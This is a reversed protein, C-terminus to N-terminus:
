VLFCGIVFSLASLQLTAFGGFNTFFLFHGGRKEQARTDCEGSKWHKLPKYRSRTNINSIGGANGSPPPTGPQNVSISAAPSPAPIETQRSGDPAKDKMENRVWETTGQTDSPHPSTVSPPSTSPNSNPNGWLLSWWQAQGPASLLMFLALSLHLTKM